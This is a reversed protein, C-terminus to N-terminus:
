IHSGGGGNAPVASDVYDVIRQFRDAQMRTMTIAAGGRAEEKIKGLEGHLEVVVARCEALDDRLRQEIQARLQSEAALFALAGNVSEENGCAQLLEAIDAKLGLKERSLTANLGDMQKITAGQAEITERAEALQEQLSQLPAAIKAIADSVAHVLKGANEPSMGVRELHRSMQNEMAAQAQKWCDQWITWNQQTLRSLYEGTSLKNFSMSSGEWYKEFAEGSMRSADGASRATPQTTPTDDEPHIRYTIYGDTRWDPEVGKVYDHWQGRQGDSNFNAYQIRKGAKHAAKEKEWKEVAPLPRRTRIHAEDVYASTKGVSDLPSRWQLTSWAIQDCEDIVEGDLLPRMGDPLM